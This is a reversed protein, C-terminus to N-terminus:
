CVWKRLGHTEKEKRRYEGGHFHFEIVTMKDLMIIEIWVIM